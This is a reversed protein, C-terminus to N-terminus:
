FPHWPEEANAETSSRARLELLQRYAAEFDTKRDATKEPHHISFASVLVNIMAALATFSPSDIQSNGPCLVIVEAARAAPTAAHTALVITKAGRQRAFEVADAVSVDLNSLSLGILLDDAGAEHLTEALAVVNPRLCLAPLGAERLASACLDALPACCAQGTVWIQNANLLAPLITNASHMLRAQALALNHKENELLSRFLGVDDTDDLTPTYSATAEQKVVEQIEHILERFGSYGLAQSFRVVTAADVGIQRGMETATMFAADLQRHLVFNALERFSPSLEDYKAAIRDRFM